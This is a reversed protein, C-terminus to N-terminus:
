GFRFRLCARFYLARFSPRVLIGLAHWPGLRHCRTRYFFASVILWITGNSFGSLAAGIAESPGSEADTVLVGTAACVAISVISLSGMPAASLIIAVITAAFIAFLHWANDALGEPTPLLWVIVGVALAAVLRGPKVEGERGQIEVPPPASHHTRTSM